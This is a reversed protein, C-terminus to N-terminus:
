FNGNTSLLTAYFLQKLGSIIHSTSSFSRSLTDRLIRRQARICLRDINRQMGDVPIVVPVSFSRLCFPRFRVWFILTSNMNKLFNMRSHRSLLPRKETALYFRFSHRPMDIIAFFPDPAFRTVIIQNRRVSSVCLDYMVDRLFDDGYNDASSSKKM